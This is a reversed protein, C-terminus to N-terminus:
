ENFEKIITNWLTKFLSLRDDNDKGDLDMSQLLWSAVKAAAQKKISYQKDTEKKNIEAKEETFDKDDVLKISTFNKFGKENETFEIEVVDGKAVSEVYKGVTSDFTSYMLGDTTTIGYLTSDGKDKVWINKTKKIVKM